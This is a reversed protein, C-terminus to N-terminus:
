PVPLLSASGILRHRRGSLEGRCIQSTCISLCAISAAGPMSSKALVSGVANCSALPGNRLIPRQRTENHVVCWDPFRRGRRDIFVVAAYRPSACAGRSIPRDTYWNVAGSRGPCSCRKRGPVSAGSYVHRRNRSRCHWGISHAARRRVLGPWRWGLRPDTHLSLNRWGPHSSCNVPRPDCLTSRALSGM